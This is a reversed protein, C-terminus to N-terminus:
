VELLGRLLELLLGNGTESGPISDVQCVNGGHVATIAEGPLLKRQEGNRFSVAFLAAQRKGASAKELSRLRQQINLMMDAERGEM